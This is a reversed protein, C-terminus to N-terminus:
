LNLKLNLFDFAQTKKLICYYYILEYSHLTKCYYQLPGYLKKFTSLVHFLNSLVNSFTSSIYVALSVINLTHKHFVSQKVHCCSLYKLKVFIATGAKIVTYYDNHLM